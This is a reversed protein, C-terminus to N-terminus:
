EESSSSSSREHKRKRGRPETAVVVPTYLNLPFVQQAIKDLSQLSEATGPERSVLSTYLVNTVKAFFPLNWHLEEKDKNGLVACFEDSANELVEESSLRLIESLVQLYLAQIPPSRSLVDFCLDLYVITAARNRYTASTSSPGAMLAGPDAGAKLFLKLIEEELLLSLFRKANSRERAWWQCILAFLQTWPGMGQCDDKKNPDMGRNDLLCVLVDTGRGRYLQINQTM